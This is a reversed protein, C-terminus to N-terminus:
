VAGCDAAQVAERLDGPRCRIFVRSGSRVFEARPSFSGEPRDVAIVRVAHRTEAAGDVLVLGSGNLRRARAPDHDVLAVRKGAAELRCALLCGIAGPGVICLQPAPDGESM